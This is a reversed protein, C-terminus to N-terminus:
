PKVKKIINLAVALVFWKAAPEDPNHEGTILGAERAEQIIKLKWDDKGTKQEPMGIGFYDCIGQATALAANDQFDPNILLAEEAPNSIFALEVLCAPMITQKLVAFNATKVGRDKLNIAPILRRHISKALQEGDGGLNYCFVETGNANSKDSSNCHISVFLDAKLSNALDSRAQLDQSVTQGLAIDKERTLRVDCAQKLYQQIKKAVQLTIVKEQVGKPGVAGPDPGGHGPDLIVKIM